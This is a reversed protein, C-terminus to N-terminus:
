ANNIHILRAIAKPHKVVIGSYWEVRTRYAPKTDLEGLDRVDMPETQIGHVGDLGFRVAYISTTDLNSSGDDEDFDLIPTGTADDEVIGIPIGAYAMLQRGFTDSVTEMAAGSARVLANVKRRMTKNMLLVSPTGQIADILQDLDDLTLTGGGTGLDLEQTGDELRKNIGDFERPDTASDGDFWTKQWTLTLSKAKLADHAARADNDGAGMKVLSVDYDSDGGCITLTETVPNIVGTSEAYAENVGRFAVGPLSDEMNYKYANGQINAFPMRELIPNESAFIEVVGSQLPNNNLKAWELITLM